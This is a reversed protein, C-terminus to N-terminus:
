ASKKDPSSQDEVVGMVNQGSTPKPHLGEENPQEDIEMRSKVPTMMDSDEMASFNFNITIRNKRHPALKLIFSYRPGDNQKHSEIVSYSNLIVKYKSFEFANEILSQGASISLYLKKEVESILDADNLYHNLILNPSFSPLKGFHDAFLVPNCYFYGVEANETLEFFAIGQEWVKEFLNLQVQHNFYSVFENHLAELSASLINLESISLKKESQTVIAVKFDYAPIDVFNTHGNSEDDDALQRCIAFSCRPSTLAEIQFLVFAYLAISRKIKNVKKLLFSRTMKKNFHTQLIKYLSELLLKNFEATKPNTFLNKFKEENDPTVRFIFIVNSEVYKDNQPVIFNISAFGSKSFDVKFSKQLSQKIYSDFMMLEFYDSQSYHFNECFLFVNDINFYDSKATEMGWINFRTNRCLVFTEEVPWIAKTVTNLLENTSIDELNNMYCMNQLFISLHEYRSKLMSIQEKYDEILQDSPNTSLIQKHAFNLNLVEPITKRANSYKLVSLNDLLHKVRTLATIDKLELTPQNSANTSSGLLNRLESEITQINM